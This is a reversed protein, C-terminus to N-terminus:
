KDVMDIMISALFKTLYLATVMGLVTLSLVLIM